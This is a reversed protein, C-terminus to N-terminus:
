DQEHVILMHVPHNAHYNSELQKMYHARNYSPDLWSRWRRREKEREKDNGKGKSKSRVMCFIMVLLLVILLTTGGLTIFLIATGSLTSFRAVQAPASSAANDNATSVPLTTSLTESAPVVNSWGTTQLTMSKANFLFGDLPGDTSTWPPTPSARTDVVLSERSLLDMDRFSRDNARSLFEVHEDNQASGSESISAVALDCVANVLLAGPACSNDKHKNLHQSHCM